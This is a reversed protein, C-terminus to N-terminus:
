WEVQIELVMEEEKVGDVIYSPVICCVLFFFRFLKHFRTDDEYICKETIEKAIYFKKVMM